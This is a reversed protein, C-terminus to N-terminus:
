RRPSPATQSEILDVVLADGSSLTVEHVYRPPANTMRPRWAAIDSWALKRTVERGERITIGDAQFCAVVARRARWRAYTVRFALSALPDILVRVLLSLPGVILSMGVYPVWALPNSDLEIGLARSADRARQYFLWSHVAGVLVWLVALAVLITGSTTM